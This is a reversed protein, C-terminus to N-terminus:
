SKYIPFTLLDLFTSKLCFAFSYFCHLIREIMQVISPIIHLVFFNREVGDILLEDLSLAFSGARIRREFFIIRKISIMDLLM